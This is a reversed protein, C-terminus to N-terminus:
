HTYSCVTFECSDKFYYYDVKKVSDYTQYLIRGSGLHKGDQTVSVELGISIAEQFDEDTTLVTGHEMM